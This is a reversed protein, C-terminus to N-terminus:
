GSPASRQKRTELQAMAGALGALAAEVLAIVSLNNILRINDPWFLNLPILFLTWFVAGCAHFALWTWPSLLFAKVAAM